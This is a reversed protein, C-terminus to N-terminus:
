LAPLQFRAIVPLHDSIALTDDQRVRGELRQLRSSYFLYDLTRDPGQLSPDNPFHTLWQARDAGGTEANSPILAYKDWLLHLDSDAPYFPRQEAALRRYAGLPLLNFDGGILWPTGAGELRDLRREITKLQQLQTDQGPVYTDLHTNLVALQRGDNLPLYVSLLARKPQWGQSPWPSPAEALQLREARGIRFRSLTALKRGVSGLIHWDPVFANKWDFAQASCPYLDALRAQLLGLQNQHDSARADDDLEQLLVLDPAEDRIVRAVEDLNYALDEATPREDDGRAQDYWFVYQKGALYQINWTMVKLSQGPTLVPAEASCGVPLKQRPLPRWALAHVLLGLAIALVLLLLLTNRLSRTM